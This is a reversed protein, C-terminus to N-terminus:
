GSIDKSMSVSYAGETFIESIMHPILEKFEPAMDRWHVCHLMRLRDFIYETESISVKLLDMSERVACIDFFSSRFMTDLRTKCLAVDFKDHNDLFVIMDTMSQKRPITKTRRVEEISKSEVPRSEFM